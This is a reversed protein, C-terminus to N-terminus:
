DHSISLNKRNGKQLLFMVEINTQGNTKWKGELIEEQHKGVSIRDGYVM